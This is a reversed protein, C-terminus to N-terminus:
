VSSQFVDTHLPGHIRRARVCASSMHLGVCFVCARLEWQAWGVDRVVFQQGRARWWIWTVHMCTAFRLHGPFVFSHTHTVRVCLMHVRSRLEGPICMWMHMSGPGLVLVHHATRLLRCTNM